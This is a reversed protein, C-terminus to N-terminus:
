TRHELGCVFCGTVGLIWSPCIQGRPFEYDAGKNAHSGRHWLAKVEGKAQVNHSKGLTNLVQDPQLVRLVHVIRMELLVITPYDVLFAVANVASRKM